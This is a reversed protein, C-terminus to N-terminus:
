YNQKCNKKGLNPGIDRYSLNEFHALPPINSQFEEFVEADNGNTKSKAASQHQHHEFQDDSNSMCEESVVSLHDFNLNIKENGRGSPKAMSSSQNGSNSASGSCQANVNAVQCERDIHAAKTNM